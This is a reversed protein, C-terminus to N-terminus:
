SKGSEISGEWTDPEGKYVLYTINGERVADLGLANALATKITFDLDELEDIKQKVEKGKNNELRQASEKLENTVHLYFLDRGEDTLWIPYVDAELPIQEKATVKILESILKPKVSAVGEYRDLVTEMNNKIADRSEKLTILIDRKAEEKNKHWKLAKDLYLEFPAYVASKPEWSRRLLLRREKSYIPNDYLKSIQRVQAIAEANLKELITMHEGKELM